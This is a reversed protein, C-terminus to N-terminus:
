HNVAVFGFETWCEQVPAWTKDGGGYFSEFLVSDVQIEPVSRWEM